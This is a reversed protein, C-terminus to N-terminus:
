GCEWMRYCTWCKVTDNHEGENMYYSRISSSCVMIMTDKRAKVEGLEIIRIFCTGSATSWNENVIGRILEITSFSIVVFLALFFCLFKTATVIRAGIVRPETTGELGKVGRDRCIKLRKDDASNGNSNRAGTRLWPTSLSLRVSLTTASWRGDAGRTGAISQVVSLM